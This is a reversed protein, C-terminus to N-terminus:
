RKRIKIARIGKTEVEAKRKRGSCASHTQHTLCIKAMESIPKSVSVYSRQMGNQHDQLQWAPRVPIPVNSKQLAKTTQFRWFMRPTANVSHGNADPKRSQQIWEQQLAVIKPKIDICDTSVIWGRHKRSSQIKFHTIPPPIATPGQRAVTDWLSKRFWQAIYAMPVDSYEKGGAQEATTSDAWTKRMLLNTGPQTRDQPNMVCGFMFHEWAYGWEPDPDGVRICPEILNGRRMVGVAHVIEHVLTSAFLFDHRFQACRSSTKYGDDSEYFHVFRDAIEIIASVRRQFVTCCTSTYMPKTTSALTRAYVRKEPKSFRLELTHALCSLARRVGAVLDERNVDSDALPDSLYTKTTNNVTKKLERGYLLPIFFVLTSDHALFQSALLLMPKMPGDCALWSFVPHITNDLDTPPVYDDELLKFRDDKNAAAILSNITSSTTPATRKESIQQDTMIDTTQPHLQLLM